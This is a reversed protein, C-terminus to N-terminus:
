HGNICIQADCHLGDPNVGAARNADRKMRELEEKATKLALVGLADHIEIESNVDVLQRVSLHKIWELAEGKAEPPASIRYEKGDIYVVAVRQLVDSNSGHLVAQKIVVKTALEDAM